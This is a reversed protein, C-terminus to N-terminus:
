GKAKVGSIDLRLDGQGRLLAKNPTLDPSVSRGRAREKVLGFVDDVPVDGPIMLHRSCPDRYRTSNDSATQHQDTQGFRVIELLRSRLEIDEHSLSYALVPLYLERGFIQQIRHILNRLVPRYPM